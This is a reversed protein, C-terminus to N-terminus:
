STEQHGILEVAELGGQEGLEAGVDLLARGHAGGSTAPTQHEGPEDGGRDGADGRGGDAASRPGRRCGNRVGRHRDVVATADVELEVEAVVGLGDLADQGFVADIGVHREQSGVLHAVRGPVGIDDLVLVEPDDEAAVDLVPVGDLDRPHRRGALRQEDVRGVAQGVDVRLVGVGVVCPGAQHAAGHRVTDRHGRLSSFSPSITGPHRLDLRQLLDQDGVAALDRDPHDPGALVGTDATHRHVGVGVAVREEHPQGVLRVAQASRGRGVGVEVDRLDDRDRLLGPGVGDVGAVAEEGLVGAERLRDDVRSEGPDARRGLRDLVEAVLGLGLVDGLLRVGRQSGAGLVRDLVGVLDDRERLVVPRGTAILATKPPPPRPRFTARM